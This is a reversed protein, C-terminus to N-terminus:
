IRAVRGKEVVAMRRRHMERFNYREYTGIGYAVLGLFLWISTIILGIPFIMLQVGPLVFATTGNKLSAVEKDVAQQAMLFTSMVVEKSFVGAVFSAENPTVNTSVEKGDSNTGKLTVIPMVLAQLQASTMQGSMKDKDVQGLFMYSQLMRLETGNGNDQRARVAAAAPVGNAEKLESVSAGKYSLEVEIQDQPIGQFDGRPESLQYLRLDAEFTGTANNMLPLNYCVCAGSPNSAISVKKLAEQCAKDTQTNWAELDLSGDAKLPTDSGEGEVQRTVLFDGRAMLNAKAVDELRREVAPSNRTWGEMILDGIGAHAGTALFSAVLTRQWRM